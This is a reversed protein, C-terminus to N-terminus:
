GPVLEVQGRTSIPRPDVFATNRSLIVTQQLIGAIAVPRIM